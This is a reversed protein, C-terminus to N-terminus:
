TALGPVFAEVTNFVFSTYNDGGIAVILGRPTGIAALYRTANPLNTRAQWTGTAPDYVEVTSVAANEYGGDAYSVGGMAYIRGGAGVVAALDARPSPEPRERWGWTLLFWAM